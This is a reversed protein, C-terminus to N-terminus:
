LASTAGRAEPPLESEDIQDGFWVPDIRRGQYPAWKKAIPLWIEDIPAGLIHSARRFYAGEKDFYDYAPGCLRRHEAFSDETWYVQRCKTCLWHM